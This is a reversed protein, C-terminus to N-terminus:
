TRHSKSRDIEVIDIGFHGHVLEKEYRLNSRQAQKTSDGHLSERQSVCWLCRQRKHIDM